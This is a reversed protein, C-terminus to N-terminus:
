LNQTTEGGGANKNCKPFFFPVINKGREKKSVVKRELHTSKSRVWYDHTQKVKSM